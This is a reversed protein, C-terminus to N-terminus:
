AAEEMARTEALDKIHNALASFRGAPSSQRSSKHAELVAQDLHENSWGIAAASDLLDALILLTDPKVEAWKVEARPGGGTALAALRTVARDDYDHEAMKRRLEVVADKLDSQTNDHTGSPNASETGAVDASDPATAGEERPGDQEGAARRALWRLFRAQRREQSMPKGSNNSAAGLVVDEPTHLAGLVELWGTVAQLQADTAKVDQGDARALNSLLRAVPEGYGKEKAANIAAPPAPHEPMPGASPEGHAVQQAARDTVPPPTTAAAPAQREDSQGNASGNTTSTTHTRRPAAPRVSGNGRMRTVIAKALAMHDLPPGYSENGEQSLWDEYQKRIIQGCAKDIYPRKHPKTGSKPVHLKGPEEGRFVLFDESGYLCQGPGHWRGTRKWAQARANMKAQGPTEATSAGIDKRVVGFVELIAQAECYHFTKGDVQLTRESVIEFDHDWDRGCVLNLRDMLSEGIAYLGIKCPATPIDPANIVLGRVLNPTYPRRLFPIADEYSQAPLMDLDM